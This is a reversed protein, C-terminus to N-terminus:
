DDAGADSLELDQFDSESESESAEDLSVLRYIAPNPKLHQDWEVLSMEPILLQEPVMTGDGSSDGSTAELTTVRRTFAAFLYNDIFSSDLISRKKQGRDEALLDIVLLLVEIMCKALRYYWSTPNNQFTNKADGIDSKIWM